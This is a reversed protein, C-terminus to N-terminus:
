PRLLEVSSRAVLQREDRDQRGCGELETVRSIRTRDVGQGAEKTETQRGGGDLETVRSVGTRDVGQMHRWRQRDGVARQSEPFDLGIWEWVLQRRRQRDGVARQSEPFDRGTWERVLERWRQSDGM